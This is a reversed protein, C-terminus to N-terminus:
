GDAESSYKVQSPSKTNEHHNLTSVLLEWLHEVQNLHPPQAPWLMHNVVTKYEDCWGTAERARQIPESTRNRDKAPSDSLHM